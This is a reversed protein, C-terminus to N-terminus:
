VMIQTANPMLVKDQNSLSALTTIEESVEPIDAPQGCAALLVLSFLCLSLGFSRLM